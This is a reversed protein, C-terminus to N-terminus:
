YSLAMEKAIISKLEQFAASVKVPPQRPRSLPVEVIRRVSAPRPTLVVVRDSLYIAEDIDHTVFIVTHKHPVLISLLEGQMRNRLQADLAVFPEDMLICAPNVALARAIALRQRMGGSLEVPYRDAFESLHVMELFQRAIQSREDKPMGRAKLGFEVNAKATMWAFLNLDQSVVVRDPGPGLVLEGDIMIKGFRLPTFGAILNIITTKGCGSPGVIALLEGATVELSIDEVAVIAGKGSEYEKSVHQLAIKAPM